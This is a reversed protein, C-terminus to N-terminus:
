SPGGTQAARHRAEASDRDTLGLLSATLRIVQDEGEDRGGDALAVAWLGELLAARDEMAVSDKLARTFRVTDPAERELVEARARLDSAEFPSLGHLRILVRDIHGAEVDTYSGDARAVRVLLAALALQGEPRPLPAPAPALLRRLLQDLM